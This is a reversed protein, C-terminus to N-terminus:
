LRNTGTQGTQQLGNFFLKCFFLGHTVTQQKGWKQGKTGWREREKPYFNHITISTQLPFFSLGFSQAKLHM